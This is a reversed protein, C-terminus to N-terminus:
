TDGLVLFRRHFLDCLLHLSCTSELVADVRPAACFAIVQPLSAWVMLKPCSYASSSLGLVLWVILSGDTLLELLFDHRERLSPRLTPVGADAGLLPPAAPRQPCIAPSRMPSSNGDTAIMRPRM